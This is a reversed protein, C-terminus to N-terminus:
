SGCKRSQSSQDVFYSEVNSAYKRCSSANRQEDRARENENLIKRTVISKREFM